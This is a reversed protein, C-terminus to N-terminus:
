LWKTSPVRAFPEDYTAIKCRSYGIVPTIKCELKLRHSDGAKFQDATYRIQYRGKENTITEGLKEESRLDRDYACLTMGTAVRGNAFQVQGRVVFEIQPPRDFAGLVSLLQNLADATSEDIEGTTSLGRQDQFLSVLLLTGNDGFTQRDREGSLGRLLREKESPDDIKLRGKDVLFRLADQLNVVQEGNDGIRLPPFVKQVM